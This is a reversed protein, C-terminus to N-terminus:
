KRRTLADELPESEPPFVTLAHRPLKGITSNVITPDATEWEDDRMRVRARVHPFGTEGRFVPEIAAPVGAALCLAVFVRAKLDCDGYGRHLGVASSDLLEIGHRTGQADFWAPDREYRICRQVFRLIAEERDPRPLGRFARAWRLVAPDEADHRAADAMYAAKAERDAFNIWRAAGRWGYAAGAPLMPGVAPHGNVLRLAHSGLGIEVDHRSVLDDGDRDLAHFLKPAGQWTALRLPASGEGRVLAAGTGLANELEHEDVVGDGNADLAHFVEPRGSWRWRPVQLPPPPGVIVAHVPVGHIFRPVGPVPTATRLELGYGRADFSVGLGRLWPAGRARLRLADRAEIAEALTAGM